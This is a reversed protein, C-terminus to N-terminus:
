APTFDFRRSPRVGGRQTRRQEAELRMLTM